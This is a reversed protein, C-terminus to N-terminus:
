YMYDHDQYPPGYWEIETLIMVKKDSFIDIPFGKKNGDLNM